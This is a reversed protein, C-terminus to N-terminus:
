IREPLVRFESLANSKLATREGQDDEQIVAQKLYLVADELSEIRQVLSEGDTATVTREYIRSRMSKYIGEGKDKVGEGDINSPTGM